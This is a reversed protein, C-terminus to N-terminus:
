ERATEAKGVRVLGHLRTERPHRVLLRLHPRANAESGTRSVRIRRRGVLISFPVLISFRLVPLLITFRHELHELSSLFGVLQKEKLKM